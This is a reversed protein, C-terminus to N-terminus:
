FDEDQDTLYNDAIGQYKEKPNVGVLREVEVGNKFVLVTPISKIQYDSSITPCEDVNAKGVVGIIM